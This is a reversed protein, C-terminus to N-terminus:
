GINTFQPISLEVRTGAVNGAVIIEKIQIGFKDTGNKNNLLALREEIIKIGYSIHNENRLESAKSFGIGNDEVCILLLGDYNDFYIRILGKKPLVRLGHKISNEILPQILMPPLFVKELNPVHNNIEINIKDKFRLKEIEIYKKLFEIERSLSIFENSIMELNDRIIGGLTAIYVSAKEPSNNLIFNQISNLSNFVFHPNIQSHLSQIQLDAIKKSLFLREEQIKRKKNFRNRILFYLLFIINFFVLSLFWTSEGIPKKIIFTIEEQYIESSEKDLAECLITYHGSRPNSLLVNNGSELKNSNIRYRYEINASSPIKAVSFILNISKINGAHRKGQIQYYSVEKGNLRIEPFSMKLKSYVPETPLIRILKDTTAIFLSGDSTIQPSKSSIYEYGNHRNFFNGTGISDNYIKEVPIKNLGLDTGIYLFNNNFKLWKYNSGQIPSNNKNYRSVIELKDTLRIKFLNGESSVCWANGENDFDIDLIVDDLLSNTSNLHYIHKGSLAYLGNIFSAFYTVNKETKISVVDKVQISDGTVFYPNDLSRKIDPFFKLLDYRPVWFTTDSESCSTFQGHPIPIYNALEPFSITGSSTLLYDCGKDGVFYLPIMSKSQSLQSLLRDVNNQGDNVKISKLYIRALNNIKKEIDPIAIFFEIKGNELKFINKETLIYISEGHEMIDLIMSEDKIPFIEFPTIPLIFLGHNSCVFTLETEADYVLNIVSVNGINYLTPKIKKTAVELSFIGTKFPGEGFGGVYIEGNNQSTMTWPFFQSDTEIFKEIIGSSPDFKYISNELGVYVNDGAVTLGYGQLNGILQNPKSKLIDDSNIVLKYFGGPEKDNHITFFIDGQFEEIALVSSKKLPENFHGLLYFTSDKFIYIGFDTGVFLTKHTISYHLKRFTDDRVPHKLHYTEKLQYNQFVSLGGLYCAVYVLNDEVPEVAWVMNGPLGDIKKLNLFKNGDYISLGNGTGIWLKGFNDKATCYVSNFILGSEESLQYYPKEQSISVQTNIFLFLSILFLFKKV